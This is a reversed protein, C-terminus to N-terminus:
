PGRIDGVQLSWQGHTEIDVLHLLMPYWPGANVAHRPILLYPMDFLALQTVSSLFLVLASPRLRHTGPLVLRTDASPERSVMCICLLLVCGSSFLTLQCHYHGPPLSHGLMEPSSAPHPHEPLSLHILHCNHM